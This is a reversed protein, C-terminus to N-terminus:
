EAEEELWLKGAKAFAKKRSLLFYAVGVLVIYGLCIGISVWYLGPTGDRYAYAPLHIQLILPIAFLFVIASAPMYDNAVPTEFDPDIVRLLALGTALTGTAAGYVIMSREFRHDPYMRSGMWPILIFALAGAVTSMLLLPLWYAKVVV